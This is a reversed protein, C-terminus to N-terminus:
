IQSQHTSYFTQEHLHFTHAHHILSMRHGQFGLIIRELMLYSREEFVTGLSLLVTDYLSIQHAAVLVLQMFSAGGTDCGVSLPAAPKPPALLYHPPFWDFTILHWSREETDPLRVQSTSTARLIIIEHKAREYELCTNTTVSM